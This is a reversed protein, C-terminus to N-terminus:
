GSKRGVYRVEHRGQRSWNEEHHLTELGPVGDDLEGPDLLWEASPKAHRELNRRTPHVLVLRGGVSLAEAISAFHDRVLFFTVLIVEWSGPPFGDDLDHAQTVLELGERAAAAQARALGAPSIDILTVSLGRRALWRAHRGTGGAVDLARGSTPLHHAAVQDLFPHPEGGYGRGSQYRAEWKEFDYASM